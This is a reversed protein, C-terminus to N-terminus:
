RRRPARRAEDRQRRRRELAALPQLLQAREFGAHADVRDDDVVHREPDISGVIELPRPRDERPSLWSCLGDDGELALGARVGVDGALLGMRVPLRQGARGELISERRDAVALRREGHDRDLVRDGAADGVDVMKERGGPQMDDALM